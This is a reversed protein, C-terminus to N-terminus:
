GNVVDAVFQEAVDHLKVNRQQSQTILLGFAEDATIRHLAMLIGKAQDIVARSVLAAQLQGVTVQARRYRRASRLAAEAATTYLELLAEDLTSFGEDGTGYLNLSGQYQRDIFLPASLYSAVAAEGAAAAFDPWRQAAESVKVRQIHGTRSAELCPGEGADYQAQDIRLAGDGTATVTYPVDDRLLTISAMGTDPVARVVQRCLRELVVALEEDQELTGTLQELASTVEDVRQAVDTEHLLREHM